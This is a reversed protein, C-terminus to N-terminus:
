IVRREDSDNTKLKGNGFGDVVICSENNQLM